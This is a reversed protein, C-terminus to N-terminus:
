SSAAPLRRFLHCCTNFSLQVLILSHGAFCLGLVVEDLLQAVPVPYRALAHICVPDGAGPQDAAEDIGLCTELEHRPLAVPRMLSLHPEVHELRLEGM